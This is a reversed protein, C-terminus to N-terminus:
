HNVELRRDKERAEKTAEPDDLTPSQELAKWEFKEDFPDHAKQPGFLRLDVPLATYPTYDPVPNFRDAFDTAPASIIWKKGIHFKSRKYLLNNSIFPHVLFIIPGYNHTLEPPFNLILFFAVISLPSNGHLNFFPAPIPQVRETM